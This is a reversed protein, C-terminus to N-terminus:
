SKVDYQDPVHDPLAKRLPLGTEKDEGFGFLVGPTYVGGGGKKTITTLINPRIDPEVKERIRKGGDQEGVYDIGKSTGVKIQGPPRFAEEAYMKVKGGGAVQRTVYPDGVCIPTIWMFMTDTTMGKKSPNSLINPKKFEEETMKHSRPAKSNEGIALPAGYGFYGFRPENSNELSEKLIEERRAEMDFKGM